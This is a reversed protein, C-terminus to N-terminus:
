RAVRALTRRPNHRDHSSVRSRPGRAGDISDNVGVPPLIRLGLREASPLRGATMVGANVLGKPMFSAHSLLAEPPTGLRGTPSITQGYYM